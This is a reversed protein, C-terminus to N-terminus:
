KYVVFFFNYIDNNNFYSIIVFFSDQLLTTKLFFITWSKCFWLREICPEFLLQSSNYKTIQMGPNYLELVAM